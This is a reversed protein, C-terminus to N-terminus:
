MVELVAPDRNIILIRLANLYRQFSDVDNYNALEVVARHAFAGVEKMGMLDDAPISEWIAEAFAKEKLNAPNTIMAKFIKYDMAKSNQLYHTYLKQSIKEELQRYDIMIKAAEQGSKKSAMDAVSYQFSQFAGLTTQSQIFRKLKLTMRAEAKYSEYVLRARATFVKKLTQGESMMSLLPVKRGKFFNFEPMGQVQVVYPIERIKMPINLFVDTLDDV